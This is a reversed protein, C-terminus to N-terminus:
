SYRLQELLEKTQPILPFSGDNILIFDAKNKKEEDSMQHQIRESVAEQTVEDRQMARQIRLELPAYVMVLFDVEDQFGAEILIASEMAVIPIDHKRVVWEQFDVKVEPHIIHNIQLAHEPHSFLYSALLQKNLEKGLYVKPGLLAILKDRIIPSSITLRKAEVDSLYVPVGMLEFLQSIVTKGSGIGGTIGLRIPAM